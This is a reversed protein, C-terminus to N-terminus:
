SEMVGRAINIKKAEHCKPFSSVHRGKIDHGPVTIYSMCRPCLIDIFKYSFGDLRWKHGTKM